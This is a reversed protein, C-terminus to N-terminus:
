KLQYKIEKLKDDMQLKELIEFLSDFGGIDYWLYNTRILNMNDQKELVSKSFNDVITEKFFDNSSIKGNKFDTMLQFQTPLINKISDNILSNSALMIGNNWFYNDHKILEKAIDLKPKEIFSKVLELNNEIFTEIYGYETSPNTPPVGYLVYNKNVNMINLGDLISKEFAKIDDIYHDSPLIVVDFDNGKLSSIYSIAHTISALTEKMFPELIINEKPLNSFLNDVIKKHSENTVIFINEKSVIDKVRDVTDEVITKNTILSLYQKPREPTSLPALRTGKGSALILAVLM